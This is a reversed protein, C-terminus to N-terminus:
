ALAVAPQEPLVLTFTIGLATAEYQLDGGQRRALLRSLHLGLGSGSIRQVADGRYYKQFLRAADPLPGALAQNAVSVRQVAGQPHHERVIAVNILSGHPSYKLANDLLNNFIV